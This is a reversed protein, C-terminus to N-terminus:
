VGMMEKATLLVQESPKNGALMVAIEYQRETDNLKRINTRTINNELSKYVNFHSDAKAAIQPLHTIALVQHKKAHEKMVNGVKLAAEGSIGTDIEDFVISPLSIKDSILSKICLMLRSLEGGSAVKNIAQMQSGKNAAFYFEIIDTGTQNINDNDLSTHKVKLEADPMAVQALLKSINKEILPISNKRKDSLVKAKSLVSEHHNKLEFEKQEIEKSISSIELIDNELKRQFDILELNNNLRHKKQLNFLLQLRNDVRELESPNAHSLNSINEFEAAIDKLEITSQELRVGLEEIGKNHKQASTLNSKVVRLQDILSNETGDLLCFATYSAQQITEAHSLLNLTNELEEQENDQIKAETLENLIFKFYDEDQKAKAERENLEELQKLCNKYQIFTNKYDELLELNDAIADIIELQFEAENLELTEHQSVIDVLKSGLDKLLNLTVPTDNIFARSKGNNTIERRIICIDDYDLENQKFFSKLKDKKIDFNCEIVCKEEQNMLSKADAREGLILGLAGMMISKGAGTEGTIINLKPGFEIEVEKIIAYNKIKLSTIM